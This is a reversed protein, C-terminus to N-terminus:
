LRAEAFCNETEWLVVKVVQVDTGRLVEPAVTRLLYNAMNEATLNVDLLFIRQGAVQGVAARAERDDTHLIFGHDWNEDLWGGLEEELVSFDM